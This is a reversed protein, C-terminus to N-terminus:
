QTKGARITRRATPSLKDQQRPAISSIKPEVRAVEPRLSPPAGLVLGQASAPDAPHGPSLSVDPQQPGCASVVFPLLAIM